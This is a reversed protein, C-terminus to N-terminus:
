RATGLELRASPTTVRDSTVRAGKAITVSRSGGFTLVHMTGPEISPGNQQIGVTAETVTIPGAGYVNSIRIRTEDTSGASVHVIERLTQDDFGKYATPHASGNPSLETPNLMAAEWTGTVPPTTATRAASATVGTFAGAALATTAVAATLTKKLRM